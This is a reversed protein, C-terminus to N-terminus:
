KGRAEEGSLKLLERLFGEGIWPENPVYISPGGADNTVLCLDFFRGDESLEVYEYYRRDFDTLDVPRGDELMVAKPDDGEELVYFDGGCDAVVDFQLKGCYEHAIAIRSLMAQKVSSEELNKVELETRFRKM